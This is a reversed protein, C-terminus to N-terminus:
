QIGLDIYWTLIYRCMLVTDYSTTWVSTHTHALVTTVNLIIQGTYGINFIYNLSIM